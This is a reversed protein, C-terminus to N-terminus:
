VFNGSWDWDAAAYFIEDFDSWKSQFIVIYSNEFHRGDAM